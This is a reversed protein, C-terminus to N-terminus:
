LICRLFARLEKLLKPHRAGCKAIAELGRRLYVGVSGKAVGQKTAIKEYTLEDLFFDSLAARQKPNLEKALESLLNALEAQALNAWPLDTSVPDLPADASDQLAELSETRGAGRKQAFRERLRSVARNHAISAALPKLEDVQSVQKVTEILEEIAEIAVDEVEGPLSKELKLKAVAFVTPWLWRFAEDWASADGSRLARLDPTSV